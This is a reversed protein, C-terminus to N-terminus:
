LLDHLSVVIPFPKGLNRAKARVVTLSRKLSVAISAPSLGDDILAILHATQAPTWNRSDIRVM